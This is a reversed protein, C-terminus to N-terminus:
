INMMLLPQESIGNGEKADKIHRKRCRGRQKNSQGCLIKQPMALIWQM